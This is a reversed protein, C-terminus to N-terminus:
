LFSNDTKQYKIKFQSTVLQLSSVDLDFEVISCGPDNYNAYSTDSNRKTAMNITNQVTVQWLEHETYPLLM